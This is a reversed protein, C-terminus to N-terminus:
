VFMDKIFAKKPNEKNVVVNIQQGEKLSKIYTNQHVAIGSVYEKDEFIYSFEIRGRDKFLSIYTIKGM